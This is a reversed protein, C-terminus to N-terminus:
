TGTKTGRNILDYATNVLAMQVSYSDPIIWVRRNRAAIEESFCGDQWEDERWPDSIGLGIANMKAEDVGLEVFSRMVQEARKQSLETDFRTAGDIKAMSGVLYIKGNPYAAFYEKFLSVYKSLSNLVNERDVYDCSNPLFRIEDMSIEISPRISHTPCNADTCNKDNCKKEDTQEMRGTNILESSADSRDPEFSVVENNFIHSLSSQIHSYSNLLFVTALGLLAASGTVAAFTTVCKHLKSVHLGTKM